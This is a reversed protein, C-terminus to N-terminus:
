LKSTLSHLYNQDSAVKFETFIVGSRFTYEDSDYASYIVKGSVDVIRPSNTVDGPPVHIHLQILKIKQLNRDLLIDAGKSSIGRILCIGANIGDILADAHWRVLIRPEARSEKIKFTGLSETSSAAGDTSANKPGSTEAAVAAVPPPETPLAASNPIDNAPLDITNEDTM